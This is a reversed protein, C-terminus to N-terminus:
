PRQSRRRDLTRKLLRAYDGFSERRSLTHNSDHIRRELVVDEIVSHALGLDCARAFWSIFEGVRLDEEFPGVRRFDELRLLMAGAFYAPATGAPCHLRRRSAEQLSPCLFHRVHGFIAAPDKLKERAALLKALRGAPWRDDADLFALYEGRAAEVGRNRAAGIGANVQRIARIGPHHSRAIELSGDTSGDDVVIVEISLGDQAYASALAECIFSAANHVPIVISVVGGADPGTM